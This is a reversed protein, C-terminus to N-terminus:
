TMALLLVMRWIVKYKRLFGKPLDLLITVISVFLWKLWRRNLLGNVLSIGHSIYKM